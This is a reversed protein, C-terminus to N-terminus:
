RTITIKEIEDLHNLPLEIRVSDGVRISSRLLLTNQELVVGDDSYVVYRWSGPNTVGQTRTLNFELIGAGTGFPKELNFDKLAIENELGASIEITFSSAVGKKVKYTTGSSRATANKEDSTTSPQERQRESEAMQKAFGEPDMISMIMSFGCCCCVIMCLFLGGCIAAILAAPYSKIRAILGQPQDKDPKNTNENEM